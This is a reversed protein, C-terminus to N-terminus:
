ESLDRLKGQHNFRRCVPEQTTLLGVQDALKNIALTNTAQGLGATETVMPLYVEMGLKPVNQGTVPDQMTSMDLFYIRSLSDSPVNPGQVVPVDDWHSIQSNFNVGPRTEAEDTGRAVAAAAAAALADARFQSDRLESMVGATDVGTFIVINDRDVGNQIMSQIVGNILDKTLQRDGNGANHDVVADAWNAENAGGAGTASRDITYVDLDGDAFNVGNADQANAEEDASAIVRDLATLTTDDAYQVGNGGNADDSSEVARALGDVEISRQFYEEGIQTLNEFPVGDQIEAQLQQLLTAEFLIQSHHPDAAVERTSFDVPDPWADGEDPSNMSPPNFVARFTQARPDSISTVPQDSPVKPLMGWLPTKVNAQQWLVQGYARNNIGDTGSTFAAKQYLSDSKGYLGDMNDAWHFGSAVRGVAHAYKALGSNFAEVSM